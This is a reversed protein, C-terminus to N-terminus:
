KIVELKIPSGEPLDKIQQALDGSLRILEVLPATKINSIAYKGGLPGPVALCFKHGAELPGHVEVAQEVLLQMYWDQLFEQETSIQDLEERNHAIVKCYLDEPCLRWYMNNADKILLNGFDNEGVVEIPVIGIWGWSGEIERILDMKDEEYSLLNPM